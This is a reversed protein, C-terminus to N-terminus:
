KYRRAHRAAIATAFLEVGTGNRNLMIGNRGRTRLAPRHTKSMTTKRANQVTTTPKGGVQVPGTAMPRQFLWQVLRAPQFPLGLLFAADGGPHLVEPYEVEVAFWACSQFM